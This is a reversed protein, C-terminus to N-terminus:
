AAQVQPRTTGDPVEPPEDVVAPAAPRRAVALDRELEAARQELAGITKNRELLQANLRRRDLVARVRAPLGLAFGLMLGVAAPVVLLLWLPVETFRYGFFQLDVADANQAGFSVVVIVLAAGLLLWVIAM